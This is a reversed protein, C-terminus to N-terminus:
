HMQVKKSIAHLFLVLDLFSFQLDPFASLNAHSALVEGIAGILVAVRHNAAIESLLRQLM